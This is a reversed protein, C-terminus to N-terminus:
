YNELKFVKRVKKFYLHEMKPPLVYSSLKINQM